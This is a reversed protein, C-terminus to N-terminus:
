LQLSVVIEKPAGQARFNAPYTKKASMVVFYAPLHRLLLQGSKPIAAELVAAPANGEPDTAKEQVIVESGQPGKITLLVLQAM